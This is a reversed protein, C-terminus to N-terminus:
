SQGRALLPAYVSRFAHAANETSFRRAVAPAENRLGSRRAPDLLELMANALATPSEPPVLVGGGHAIVEPIGGVDACICPLGAALAELLALGLGERRSPFVFVDLQRLLGPVDAEYGLLHIRGQLGRRQIDATLAGHLPGPGAIVCHCDHGRAILRATADILLDHGKEIQLLGVTGFVCAGESIGLQSRWRQARATDTTFRELNVGGFIVDVESVGMVGTDVMDEAVAKSVATIRAPHRRLVRMASLRRHQLRRSRSQLGHITWVVPLHAREAAGITQLDIRSSVHTHVLDAQMARLVAAFRRPFTTELVRGVRQALRYPRVPIEDPMPFPCVEVPIKADAFVQALEGRGSFVCIVKHQFGSLEHSRAFDLVLRQPGSSRLNSIVHVVTPKGTREVQLPRASM